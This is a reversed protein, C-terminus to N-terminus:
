DTTEEPLVEATGKRDSRWQMFLLWMAGLGIITAAFGILWGVFPISRFIVYLIIGVLLSWIKNEVPKSSLKTILWDGIFFAIVLKSGFKMLLLFIAFAFGLASFTTGFFVSTIGGLTILSLLLGVGILIIGALFTGFYGMILVLIGYGASPLPEQGVKVATQKLLSPLLLYALLGLIILTILTKFTKRLWRLFSKVLRDAPTEPTTEKITKETEVTTETPVPTQYIIEGEPMSQINEDQREPSTYILKGGIDSGEGVRLGPNVMQPMYTQYEAPMFMFPSFPMTEQSSSDVELYANRGVVGDLEVAGAGVSVDRGVKGNLIAQYAGVFLDKEITSQPAAELGFGGYYTNRGITANNELLMSASGGAVSGTVTGDIQITTAGSFLNGDILATDSINVVAGFIFADGNITGNITVTEGSAILIGNVTGDVRVKDGSVFVDDNIVEDPGIIGDNDFEAAQVPNFIGSILVITISIILAWHITPSQFLKKM